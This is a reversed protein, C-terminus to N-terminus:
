ELSKQLEKMANNDRLEPELLSVQEVFGRGLQRLQRILDALLVRQTGITGVDVDYIPSSTALVWDGESAFEVLKEIGQGYLQLAVPQSQVLAGIVGPLQEIVTALDYRVDVPWVGQGLGQLTFTFGHHHLLSSGYMAIEHLSVDDSASFWCDPDEEVVAITTSTKELSAIFKM